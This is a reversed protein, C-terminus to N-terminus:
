LCPSHDGHDHVHHERTKHGTLIKEVLSDRLRLCYTDLLSREQAHGLSVSFWWDGFFLLPHICTSM